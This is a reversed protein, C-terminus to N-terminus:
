RRRHGRPARRGRHGPHPLGARGPDRGQRRRRLGRRRRDPRGRRLRARDGRGAGRRLRRRDRGDPVPHLQHHRQRHRAGPQGPRRGAVRAAAAAAPDRRRRRGRLLPRRRGRPRGRAARRRGRRAAGQQRHGGVQRGRDRRPHLTRAPEIGGIVEVVVDVDDGTSWRRRRRHHAARGPRGPARAPRRVAIGALELPAGIRAALDDAQEDLLRAGRQRGHRLGAARGEAARTRDDSARCERVPTRERRLPERVPPSRRRGIGATEASRDPTSARAPGRADGAARDGPGRRRRVAVVPPRLVHNYNSAMSRCYAGTAAVALLDGPAVDAPCGPTGCWSTAARATSASWAACCRRRTPPGRVGARLHLQADYLATRINDSMGGDVSVYRGRHATAADAQGHRGRLATVTGPGAIARGPEVALRPVPLGAGRVRAAVITACRAAAVRRRRGPRGDATYAIGLGGGLDLEALEVGHEDRVQGLLASWGTRPSRSAPPTSSRRASTALAPRGAGAGARALVRRGGRRTAAPWRSASSRTRTRPPSSSTPTRRSASPSGSWCRSARRGRREACRRGAPRDRRLLRRRDPRRGADLPRSWSPSPSTTATCRSGTPPSGPACRRRCSAAPASTWASGRRPSGARSRGAAPVGQRTTARRRGDFAQAFDRCRRGSTPRTSCSCGPHRARAALDRVDVGARHAARRRRRRAAAAPPWVAPDLAGLDAPRRVTCRRRAARHRRRAAPGAPHRADVTM